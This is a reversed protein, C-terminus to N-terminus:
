ATGGREKEEILDAQVYTLEALAASAAELNTALEFAHPLGFGRRLLAAVRGIIAVQDLPWCATTGPSGKTVIKGGSLNYHRTIRGATSWVELQRHTIGIKNCIDWSQLGECEITTRPVPKVGIPTVTM